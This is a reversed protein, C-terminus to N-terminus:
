GVVWALWEAPATERDIMPGVVPLTRPVRPETAPWMGSEDCGRSGKRTNCERCCTVINQWCTTGGAARPVVHDYSLECARFKRRCYQCRYGDRQYVNVRSFKIARKDARALKRLRMVAPVKWTVSPSRVEEDYEVVVDATAEYRMKVADQWRLIKVPLYWPTLLLTKREM